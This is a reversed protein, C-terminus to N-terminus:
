LNLQTFSYITPLGIVAMNCLLLPMQLLIGIMKRKNIKMLMNYKLMQQIKDAQSNFGALASGGQEITLSVLSLFEKVEFIDVTEKIGNIATDMNSLRADIVFKELIPRWVDSVFVISEEIAREMSMGSALYGQTIRIFDSFGSLLEERKNKASNNLLFQVVFFPISWIIALFISKKIFLFIFLLSIAKSIIKLAIFQQANIHKDWNAVKLDKNIASINKIKFKPLVYVIIPDTIKKLIGDLDNNDKKDFRLQKLRKKHISYSEMSFGIIFINRVFM